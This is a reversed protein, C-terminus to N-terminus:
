IRSSRLLLDIHQSAPVAILAEESSASHFGVQWVANQTGLFDFTWLPAGSLGSLRHQPSELVSQQGHDDERVYTWQDTEVAFSFVGEITRRVSRRMAYTLFTYSLRKREEDRSVANPAYPTFGTVFYIRGDAPRAMFLETYSLEDPLVYWTNNTWGTIKAADQPTLCLIGADRYREPHRSDESLLQTQADLVIRGRDLRAILELTNKLLPERCDTVVHGATFIFYRDRHRVLLGSGILNVGAEGLAVVHLRAAETMQDAISVFREEWEDASHPANMIDDLDAM